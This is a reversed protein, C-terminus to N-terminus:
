EGSTSVRVGVQTILILHICCYSPMGRQPVSVIKGSVQPEDTRDLVYEYLPATLQTVKLKGYAGSEIELAAPGAVPNPAGATGKVLGYTFAPSMAILALPLPKSRLALCSDAITCAPTCSRTNPRTTIAHSHANPTTAVTTTQYVYPRRPCSRDHPAWDGTQAQAGGSVECALSPYYSSTSRAYLRIGRFCLRCLWSPVLELM